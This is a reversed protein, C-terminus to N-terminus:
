NQKKTSMFTILAKFDDNSCQPCMGKPPMANIGNITHEVLKDMGQELRPQWAVTDHARPAGAAGSSHCSICSRNYLQEIAPNAHSVKPEAGQQETSRDGCGVVLAIVISLFFTRTNFIM